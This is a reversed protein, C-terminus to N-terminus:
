RFQDLQSLTTIELLVFIVYFAWLLDLYRVCVCVCVCVCTSSVLVLAPEQFANMQVEPGVSSHHNVALALVSICGQPIVGKPVGDM